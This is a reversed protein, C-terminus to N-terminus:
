RRGGPGAALSSPPTADLELDVVLARHDSVPLTIVQHDVLRVGSTAVHDIRREPADAPHTPTADDLLDLGVAAVTPGVRAPHRNLDGALVRPEPRSALAAVVRELQLHSVARVLHLHACAVSLSAGDITARALLVARRSPRLLPLDVPRGRRPGRRSVFRLVEVADLRGTAVLAVGTTGGERQPAFMRTGGLAAAVVGPQDVGDSAEDGWDVEQLAVVDPDLDAVSAALLEADPRGDHRRRAHQANFTVLRM